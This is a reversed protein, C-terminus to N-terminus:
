LIDCPTINELFAHYYKWGFRQYFRPKDKCLDGEHIFFNAKFGCSSFIHELEKRIRWHEGGFQDPARLATFSLGREKLRRFNKIFSLFRIVLWSPTVYHENAVLVMGEETLLNKINSFLAPIDEDYCHHLAGCLLVLDVKEPINPKDFTGNILTVKDEPVKFHKLVSEAHKLRQESPDVAYVHKVSPHNALMASTWCVGAGVDAVIIGDKFKDSDFCLKNISEEFYPKFNTKHELHYMLREFSEETEDVQWHRALSENIFREPLKM